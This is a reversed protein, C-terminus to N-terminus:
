NSETDAHGHWDVLFPGTIPVSNAASGPTWCRLSMWEHCGCSSGHPSCVVFSRGIWWGTHPLQLPSRPLADPKKGRKSSLREMMAYELLHKLDQVKWKFIWKIVTRLIPDEQQTAVWDTVHLNLHAHTARAQVATEWVQKHIEEDAEIVVADHADIRGIGVTFGDLIVKMTEADLKSMVQSLTDTPANDWGKHYEISFTFGM